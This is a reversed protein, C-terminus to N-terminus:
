HGAGIAAGVTSAPQERGNPNKGALAAERKRVTHDFVVVRSAGTQRKILREVVPYYLRAVEDRDGDRIAQLSKPASGEADEAFAFGNKDLSFTDRDPRADHVLVDHKEQTFNSEEFGKHASGRYFTPGDSAQRPGIFGMQAPYGAVAAM